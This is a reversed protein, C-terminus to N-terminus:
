PRRIRRGEEKKGYRHERLINDVIVAIRLAISLGFVVTYLIRLVNM